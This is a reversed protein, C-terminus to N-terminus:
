TQQSLPPAHQRYDGLLSHSVGESANAALSPTTIGTMASFTMTTTTITGDDDGDSDWQQHQHQQGMTTTMMTTM